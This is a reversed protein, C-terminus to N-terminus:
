TTQKNSLIGLLYNAKNIASIIEEKTNNIGSDVSDIYNSFEISKLIAVFKVVCKYYTDLIECQQPDFQDTNDIDYCDPSYAPFLAGQSKSTGLIEELLSDFLSDLSEYLNGLIVHANYDEIFWHIMHITSLTKSLLVGFQRVPQLNNEPTSSIITIEM